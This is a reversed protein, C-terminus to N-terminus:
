LAKFLYREWLTTDKDMDMKPKQGTIEWRSFLLLFWHLGTHTWAGLNQMENAKSEGEREPNWSYSWPAIIRLFCQSSNAKHTQNGKYCRKRSWRVLSAPWFLAGWGKRRFSRRRQKPSELSWDPGTEHHWWSYLLSLHLTFCSRKSLVRGVVPKNSSKGSQPNIWLAICAFVLWIQEKRVLAIESIEKTCSGTSHQWEQTWQFIRLSM